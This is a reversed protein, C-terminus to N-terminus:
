RWFVTLSSNEYQTSMLVFKLSPSLIFGKINPTKKATFSNSFSRGSIIARLLQSTSFLWRHTQNTGCSLLIACRFVICSWSNFTQLALPTSDVIERELLSILMLEILSLISSQILLFHTYIKFSKLEIFDIKLIQLKTNLKMPRFNILLNIIISHLRIIIQIYWLLILQHFCNYKLKINKSM